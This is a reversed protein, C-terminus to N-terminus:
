WSSLQTGHGALVDGHHELVAEGGIEEVTM